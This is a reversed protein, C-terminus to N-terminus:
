EAKRSLCRKWGSWQVHDHRVGGDIRGLHRDKEKTIGFHTLRCKQRSDRQGKTNGVKYEMVKSVYRM